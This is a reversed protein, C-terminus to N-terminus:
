YILIPSIIKGMWPIDKYGPWMEKSNYFNRLKIHDWQDIEAEVEKTVSTEDKFIGKADM